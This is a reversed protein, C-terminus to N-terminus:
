SNVDKIINTLKEIISKTSANEKIEKDIENVICMIEDREMNDFKEQIHYYSMCAIRRCLYIAIQKEYMYKKLDKKDIHFYKAVVEQIYDDSIVKNKQLIEDSISKEIMERCIPSRTLSVYANVRNLVKKMDEITLEEKTAIVSLLDDDIIIKDDQAKKKLINLRTENDKFNMKIQEEM